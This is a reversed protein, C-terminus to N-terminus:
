AASFNGRNPDDSTQPNQNVPFRELAFERDTFTILQCEAASNFIAAKLRGPPKKIWTM